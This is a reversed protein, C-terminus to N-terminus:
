AIIIPMIMIKVNTYPAGRKSGINQLICVHLLRIHTAIANCIRM